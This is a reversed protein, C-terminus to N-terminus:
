SRGGARHCWQTWMERYAQELATTFGPLDMLASGQLRPRLTGRLVALRQRDTALTEALGVYAAEDAAVLEALGVQGLLSAGVRGAHRNGCLTIVPVGMWLAECTTTTGNYPFPDLAIDVRAYLGLHAERAPMVGLLEVRDTDVGLERFARVLRVRTPPDTLGQSKLLLRSDPVQQLIRAWVRVVQPTVKLLANFSGFTVHGHALCPPPAVEPLPQATQYCLFGRPLRILKETHLRDSEGPPDAIADTLRYDMARLGTTGPYGLWTVQVPAPKRAFVLLRNNATHGALDVLVDIGDERIMAAVAEDSKGAITRWQDAGAQLQRTRDDPRRVEAYGYVAVRDRHHASLLGSIFHAVSHERFDPSVYGIKLVRAPDPTNAFQPAAPLLAAAYRREFELAERHLDEPSGEAGYNLAALLNSYGAAFAPKLAIAERLAALAGDLDGQLTLTSSLNMRAAFQGPDLAIAERFADAAESYQDQEKYCVGLNNLTGADRPRLELSQRFRSTAEAVRGFGYHALGLSTYFDPQSPNSAIAKNIEEVARAGDGRRLAVLGLVHHADAHDPEGALVETCIAEAADLQNTQVSHMAQQIKKSNMWRDLKSGVGFM